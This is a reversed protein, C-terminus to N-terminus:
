FAFADPSLGTLAIGQIDQFGVANFSIDIGGAKMVVTDLHKEVAQENLADVQASEAMGGAARIENAVSDIKELTRGALFLRAGDRAFAGAVASGIAGGAGYIVANKNKLLMVISRDVTKERIHDDKDRKMTVVFTRAREPCTSLSKRKRRPRSVSATVAATFLPQRLGSLITGRKGTAFYSLTGRSSFFM